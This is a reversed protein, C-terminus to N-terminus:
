DFKFAMTVDIVNHTWNSAVIQTGLRADGSRGYWISMEPTFSWRRGRHFDYGVGAISGFGYGTSVSASSNDVGGSSAGLGGKVFLNSLSKSYYMVTGAVLLSGLGDDGRSFNWAAAKVEYGLLLQRNLAWGVNFDVVYAGDRGHQLPVGAGNVAALGASGLGWGVSLWLGKHEQAATARPLGICLLSFILITLRM